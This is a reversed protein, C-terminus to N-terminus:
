RLGVFIGHITKQCRRPISFSHGNTPQVGGTVRVGITVLEIAFAGHPTPAIPDDRGEVTVLRVVTEEGILDRAVHQRAGREILFYGGAEVAVM